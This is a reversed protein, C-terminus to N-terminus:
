EHNVLTLDGNPDLPAQTEPIVVIHHDRWGESNPFCKTVCTLAKGKAEFENDAIVFAVTHQTYHVEGVWRCTLASFAWKM